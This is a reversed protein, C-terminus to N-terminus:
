LNSVLADHIVVNELNSKRFKRKEVKIQNRKASYNIRRMIFRICNSFKDVCSTMTFALANILKRLMFNIETGTDGFASINRFNGLIASKKQLCSEALNGRGEIYNILKHFLSNLFRMPTYTLMQIL